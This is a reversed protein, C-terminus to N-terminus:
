KQSRGLLFGAVGFVACLIWTSPDTLNVGAFSLGGRELPTISGRAEAGRGVVRGRSCPARGVHTSPAGIGNITGLLPTPLDDGLGRRETPCDIYVYDGTDPQWSSYIM